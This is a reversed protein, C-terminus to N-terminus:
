SGTQTTKSGPITITIHSMATDDPAGHWHNEGAPIMVMDGVTVNFVESENGVKGNGETIVLLQDGSHTHFHTHSGADFSVIAFNFDTSEGPQLISQRYVQKGTMLGGVMNVKVKQEDSFTVKKM